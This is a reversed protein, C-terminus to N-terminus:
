RTASQAREQMITNVRALDRRLVRLRSPQEVQRSAKRIRLNFLETQIDDHQRQLEEQTLERLKNAKM